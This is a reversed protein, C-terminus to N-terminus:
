NTPQSAGILYERVATKSLGFRVELVSRPVGAAALKRLKEAREADLKTQPASKWGPPMSM